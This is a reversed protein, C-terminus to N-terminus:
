PTRTPPTTRSDGDTTWDLRYDFGDIYYRREPQALDVITSYGLYALPPSLTFHAVALRGDPSITIDRYGLRGVNVTKTEGTNPDLMCITDNGSTYALRGAQTALHITQMEAFYEVSGSEIDYIYTPADSFQKDADPYTRKWGEELMTLNHLSENRLSTFLVGQSDPRWCLGRFAKRSSIGILKGSRIDYILLDCTMGFCRYSPGRLPASIEHLPVLVALKTRDPSILLDWGSQSNIANTVSIETLIEFTPLRSVTIDRYSYGVEQSHRFAVVDGEVDWYRPDIPRCEPMSHWKQERPDFYRLRHPLGPGSETGYILGVAHSLMETDVWQELVRRDAARLRGLWVSEVPREALILFAYSLVNAITGLLLKQRRSAPSEPFFVLVLPLEVCLTLLFFPIAQQWVHMFDPHLPSRMLLYGALSSVANLVLVRWVASVLHIPRLWMRACVSEILVVVAFVFWFALTNRYANVAPIFGNALALSPSLALCAATLIHSYRKM